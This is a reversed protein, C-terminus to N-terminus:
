APGQHVAAALAALAGIASSEVLSTWGNVFPVMMLFFIRAAALGARLLRIREM